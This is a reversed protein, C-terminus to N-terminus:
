KQQHELFSAHHFIYVKKDEDFVRLHDALNDTWAIEVGAIRGLNRANFVKELKVREHGLAPSTSFHDHIFEKLTAREWNLKKRGSYGYHLSGFDIMLLLSAALDIFGDRKEAENPPSPNLAPIWQKIDERTAPKKLHRVIDITDKHTGACVHRGGDHLARRCRETYYNFYIDLSLNSSAEGNHLQRPLANPGWFQEIIEHKVPAHIPYSQYPSDLSAM